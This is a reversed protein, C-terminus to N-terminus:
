ILIPLDDDDDDNDVDGDGDDGYDDKELDHFIFHFNEMMMVIVAM